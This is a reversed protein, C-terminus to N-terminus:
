GGNSRYYLLRVHSALYGALSLHGDRFRHAVMKSDARATRDLERDPGDDGDVWLSHKPPVPPKIASKLDAVDHTGPRVRIREDNIKVPVKRDPNTTM